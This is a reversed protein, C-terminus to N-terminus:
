YVWGTTSIGLGQRYGAQRYPQGTMLVGTRGDIHRGGTLIGMGSNNNHDTTSSILHCSANPGLTVCKDAPPPPFESFSVGPQTEWVMPRGKSNGIGGM